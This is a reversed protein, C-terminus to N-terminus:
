FEKRARELDERTGIDFWKGGFLFGFVEEHDILHEILEGANEKFAKKDLHHLDYNSLIYCLTGILSTKPHEPKEEFGIIKNHKDLEVVGYKKIARKKDKIDFIAVCTADKKKHFDIFEDMDFSFLSDGALILLDEQINKLKVFSNIAGISSPSESITKDTILYIKKKSKFGEIFYRFQEEFKSNYGIYIEKIHRSKELNELIHQLMPKGRVEILTKPIVKTLPYLRTGFGSGLIFAKM